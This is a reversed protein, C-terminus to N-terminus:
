HAQSPRYSGRLPDEGNDTLTLIEPTDRRNAPCARQGCAPANM